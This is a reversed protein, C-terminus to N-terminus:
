ADAAAAKKLYRQVTARGIGLQKAIAVQSLGQAALARAQEAPTGAQVVDRAGGHADNCSDRPRFEIIEAEFGQNEQGAWLQGAVQGGHAGERAGGHEGDDDRRGKPREPPTMLEHRDLTEAALLLAILLLEVAIMMGANQRTALVAAEAEDLGLLRALAKGQTNTERVPGAHAIQEHLGAIQADLKAARDTSAKRAAVEALDALAQAEATEKERCKTGRGGREGSCEAAKTATAASAKARAADVAADDAPTFKLGEREAEARKLSRRSDGVADATSTRLATQENGRGALASVENTIAFALTAIAVAWVFASLARNYRWLRAALAPGFLAGISVVAYVFAAIAASIPNDSTSYAYQAALAVVVAGGAYGFLKALTRM